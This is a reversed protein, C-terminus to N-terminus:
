LRNLDPIHYPKKQVKSDGIYQVFPNTKIIREIQANMYPHNDGLKVTSIHSEFRTQSLLEDVLVSGLNRGQFADRIYVSFIHREDGHDQWAIHGLPPKEHSFADYLLGDYNQPLFQTLLFAPVLTDSGPKQFLHKTEGMWEDFQSGKDPNGLVQQLYSLQPKTCGSIRSLRSFTPHSQFDQQPDNPLLQGFARIDDTDYIM